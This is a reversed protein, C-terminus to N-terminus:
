FLLFIVMKQMLKVSKKFFRYFIVDAPKIETLSNLIFCVISMLSKMKRKNESNELEKMVGEIGEAEGVGGKREEVKKKGKRRVKVEFEETSSSFDMTGKPTGGLFRSDPTKSGSFELLNGFNRTRGGFALEGETEKRRKAERECLGNFKGIVVIAKGIFDDLFRQARGRDEGCKSHFALAEIAILCGLTEKEQKILGPLQKQEQLFGNKWICYRLYIMENFSSCFEYAKELGRALVELDDDALGIVPVERIIGVILLLDLSKTLVEKVDFNLNVPRFVAFVSGYGKLLEGASRPFALELNEKNMLERPIASDLCETLFRVLIRWYGRALKKKSKLVASKLAGFALKALFESRIGVLYGIIDLFERLYVENDQLYLGQMRALSATAKKLLFRLVNAESTGSPLNSSTTAQFDRVLDEFSRRLIERYVRIWFDVQFSYGFSLMISFLAELANERVRMAPDRLKEKLNFLIEFWDDERFGPQEKLVSSRRNEFTPSSLVSDEFFNLGFDESGKLLENAASGNNEELVSSLNIKIRSEDGGLPFGENAGSLEADAPSNLAQIGLFEFLFKLYKMLCDIADSRLSDVGCNLSGYLTKLFDRPSELFVQM